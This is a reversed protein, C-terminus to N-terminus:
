KFLLPALETFNRRWVFYTHAGPTEIDTFRIGKTTLWGKFDKNIGLLNDSTGCAIWVLKFSANSKESLNPFKKQFVASNDPPPTTGPAAGRNGRAGYMVFASSFGAVYSFQDPHNLGAYVAQAGGMSLGAIARQDKGKAVKYKKEVQPKVEELLSKIFTDFSEGNYMNSPDGYGLTNVMIMPKAKGEAILNDLIINARGHEIWSFAGASVGHLLYLVPYAEKKSPDYNPPLYVYFDRQDGIIASKYIHHNVTGHPVDRIAWSLNATGTADVLSQNAALYAPNVVPNNPDLMQLGDVLFSYSYLDPEVVKTFSWVGQDDKVMPEQAGNMSLLVQKANPARLRFTIGAPTVEPSKIPPLQNAPGQAYAGTIVAFLFVILPSTIRM